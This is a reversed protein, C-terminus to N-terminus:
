LNELGMKAENKLWLNKGSETQAMEYAARAAQKEGSAKLASGLVLHYRASQRWKGNLTALHRVWMALEPINQLQYFLSTWGYHPSKLMFSPTLLAQHSELALSQQIVAETNGATQAMLIEQKAKQASNLKLKWKSPKAKKDKTMRAYLRDIKPSVFGQELFTKIVRSSKDPYGHELLLSAAQLYVAPEGRLKLLVEKLSNNIKNKNRQALALEFRALHTEPRDEHSQYMQEYLMIAKEIDSFLLANHITQQKETIQLTRYLGKEGAKDKRTMYSLLNEPFLTEDFTFRFPFAAQFPALQMTGIPGYLFVKTTSFQPYNELFAQGLPPLSAALITRSRLAVLHPHEPLLELALDIAKTAKEYKLNFLQLYADLIITSADSHLGHEDAYDQINRNQSVLTFIKNTSQVVSPSGKQDMEFSQPTAQYQMAMWSLRSPTHSPHYQLNEELLARSKSAQTPYLWKALAYRLRPISAPQTIIGKQLHQTKKSIDPELLAAALYTYPHPSETDLAARLDDDITELSSVEASQDAIFYARILLGYPSNLGQTDLSEVLEASRELHNLGDLHDRWLLYHALAQASLVESEKKTDQALLLQAQRLVNNLNPANDEELESFLAQEATQISITEVIFSGGVGVSVGLFSFVAVAILMSFLRNMGTQSTSNSESKAGVTHAGLLLKFAEDLAADTTKLNEEVQELSDGPNLIFQRTVEKRENSQNSKRAPSDLQAAAHSSLSAYKKQKQREARNRIRKAEALNPDLAIARDLFNLAQEPLGKNLLYKGLLAYAGAHRPNKQIALKLAGIADQPQVLDWHIEAKLLLFEPDQESGADSAQLMMQAEKANGRKLAERIPALSAM